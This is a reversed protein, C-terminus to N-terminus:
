QELVTASFTASRGPDQPSGVGPSRGAAPRLHHHETPTSEKKGRPGAPRVTPGARSSSERHGVVRVRLGFDGLGFDGLRVDGFGRVRRRFDVVGSLFLHLDGDRRRRGSELGTGDIQIEIRIGPIVGLVILGLVGFEVREVLVGETADGFTLDDGRLDDSLRLRVDDQIDAELGFSGDREFLERIRVFNLHAIGDIDEELAELILFADDDERLLLRIEEADPLLDLVGEVVVTGHLPADLPLDLTAHRDIEHPDVREQGSGLDRKAAYGVDVVKQAVFVVELDELEVLTAPVDHHATADKEFLLPCPLSLFELLLQGHAVHARSDDLVDRVEASEDVEAPHVAEEVDGVHGPPADAMRRFDALDALRELDLDEVDVPVPLPDREAELLKLLVGPLVHGLLVRDPRAHQAPDDRNRVVAGEDFELAPDLTEDV